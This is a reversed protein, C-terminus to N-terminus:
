ILGFIVTLYIAATLDGLGSEFRSSVAYSPVSIGVRCGRENWNTNSYLNQMCTKTQFAEM